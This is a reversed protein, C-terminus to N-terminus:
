TMEVIKSSELLVFDELKCHMDNLLQKTDDLTSGKEQSVKKDKTSVHM